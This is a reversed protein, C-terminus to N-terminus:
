RGMKLTFPFREYAPCLWALHAPLLWVLLHALLALQVAALPM